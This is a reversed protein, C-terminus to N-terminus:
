WDGIELRWDGLIALTIGFHWCRSEVSAVRLTVLKSSRRNLYVAKPVGTCPMFVLYTVRIGHISIWISSVCHYSATSTELRFSQDLGIAGKPHCIVFTSLLIVKSM